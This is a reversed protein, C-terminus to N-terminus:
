TALSISVPGCTSPRSDVIRFQLNSCPRSRLTIKSVWAVLRSLSASSAEPQNSTARRCTTLFLGAREAHAALSVIERSHETRVEGTSKTGRLNRECIAEHGDQAIRPKTFAVIPCEGPARGNLDLSAARHVEGCGERFHLAVLAGHRSDGLPELLGHQGVRTPSRHDDAM